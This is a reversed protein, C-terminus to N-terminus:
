DATGFEQATHGRLAGGWARGSGACSSRGVILHALENRSHQALGFVAPLFYELGRALGILRRPKHHKGFHSAGRASSRLGRHPREIAGVVLAHIEVSREEALDLCTKSTAV